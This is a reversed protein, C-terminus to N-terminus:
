RLTERITIMAQRAISRGVAAVDKIAIEVAILCKPPDSDNVDWVLGCRGCSMQDSVQRAKCTATTTTSTDM